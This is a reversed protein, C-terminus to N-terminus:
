KLHDQSFFAAASKLIQNVKKLKDNEAKLRKFEEVSFSPDQSKSVSEKESNRMWVRIVSESVGLQRGAETPSKLERALQVAQAKFEPTFTRRKREM